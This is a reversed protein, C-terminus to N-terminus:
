QTEIMPKIILSTLRQHLIIFQIQYKQDQTRESTNKCTFESSRANKSNQADCQIAPSHKMGFM